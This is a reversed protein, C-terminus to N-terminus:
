YFIYGKFNSIIIKNHIEDFMVNVSTIILKYGKGNITLEEKTFEDDNNTQKKRVITILKDNLPISLVSM